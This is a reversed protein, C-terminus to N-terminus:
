VVYTAFYKCLNDIIKESKNKVLFDDKDAMYPMSNEKDTSSIYNEIDSIIELDLNNFMSNLQEPTLKSDRLMDVVISGVIMRQTKTLSEAIYQELSTM